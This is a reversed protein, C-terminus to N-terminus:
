SHRTSSGGNKGGTSSVNEVNRVTMELHEKILLKADSDDIGNWKRRLQDLV